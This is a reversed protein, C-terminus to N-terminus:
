NTIFLLSYPRNLAEGEIGLCTKLIKFYHKVSCKLDYIVSIFKANMMCKVLHWLTIETNDWIIIYM